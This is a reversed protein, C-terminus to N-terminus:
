ACAAPVYGIRYEHASADSCWRSYADPEGDDLYDCLRALEASTVRYYRATEDARYAWKGPGIEKASIHAAARITKARATTTM